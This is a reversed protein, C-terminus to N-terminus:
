PLAKVMHVFTPETYGPHYDYTTVAYGMREFFARNQPLATRVSLTMSTYGSARAKAEVATVLALGLGHQRFNQLVALRGLYMQEATDPYYLVCGAAQRGVMALIGGGQELKVRVKAPTEDHAGSPPTIKGRQDEFATKILDTVLVADELGADHLTYKNM